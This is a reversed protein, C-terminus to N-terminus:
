YVHHTTHTAIELENSHSCHNRAAFIAIDLDDDIFGGKTRAVEPAEYM